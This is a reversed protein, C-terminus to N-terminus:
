PLKTAFLRGDFTRGTQASHRRVKFSLSQNLMSRWFRSTLTPAKFAVSWRTSLEVRPSLSCGYLLMRVPFTLAAVALSSSSSQSQFEDAASLTYCRWAKCVQWPSDVLVSMSDYFGIMDVAARITLPSVLQGVDAPSSAGQGLRGHHYQTCGFTHGVGATRPTLRSVHLFM